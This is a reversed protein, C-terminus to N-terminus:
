TTGYIFIVVSGSFSRSVFLFRAFVWLKCINRKQNEYKTAARKAARNAPKSIAEVKIEPALDPLCVSMGHRIHTHTHPQSSPSSQVVNRKEQARQNPLLQGNRQAKQDNIGIWKCVVRLALRLRLPEKDIDREPEHTCKAKAVKLHCM